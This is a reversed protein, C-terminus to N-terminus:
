CRCCGKDASAAAISVRSPMSSQLLPLLRRRTCRPRLGCSNVDCGCCVVDDAVVVTLASKHENRKSRQLRCLFLVVVASAVVCFLLFCCCCCCCSPSVDVETEVSVVCLCVFRTPGLLWLDSVVSDRTNNCHLHPSQRSRSRTLPSVAAIVDCCCCCCCVHQM